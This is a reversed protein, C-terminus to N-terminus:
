RRFPQRSMLAWNADDTESCRAGIGILLRKTTEEDAGIVRACRALTRWDHAPDNLMETLIKKRKRDVKVQQRQDFSQALYQIAGGVAVGAVGIAAVLLEDSM